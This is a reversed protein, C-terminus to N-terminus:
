HSQEFKRRMAKLGVIQMLFVSGVAKKGFVYLSGYCSGNFKHTM